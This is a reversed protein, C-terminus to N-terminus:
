TNWTVAATSGAPIHEVKVRAGTEEHFVSGDPATVVVTVTQKGGDYGVDIKGEPM